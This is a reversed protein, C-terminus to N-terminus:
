IHRKKRFRTGVSLILGAVWSGAQAPEPVAATFSNILSGSGDSTIGVSEFGVGFVEVSPQLDTNMTGTALRVNGASTGLLADFRDGGPARRMDQWGLQLNLEEGVPAAASGARVQRNGGVDWAVTWTLEEGQAGTGRQISLVLQGLESDLGQGIGQTQIDGLYAIRVEEGEAVTATMQVLYDDGLGLFTRWPMSAVAPSTGPLRRAAGSATSYGNGTPTAWRGHSTAASGTLPGDPVGQYPPVFGIQLGDVDTQQLLGTRNFDDHMDVAFPLARGLAPSVLENGQQYLPLGRFMLEAQADAAILALLAWLGM